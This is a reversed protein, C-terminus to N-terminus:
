LNKERQFHFGTHTAAADKEETGLFGMQGNVGTGGEVDEIVHINGGRVAGRVVSWLTMDMILILLHEQSGAKALFQWWFVM